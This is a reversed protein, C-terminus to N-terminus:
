TEQTGSAKKKRKESIHVQECGELFCRMCMSSSEIYVSQRVCCNEFFDSCSMFGAPNLSTNNNDYFMVYYLFM